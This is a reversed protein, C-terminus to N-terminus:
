SVLCSRAMLVLLSIPCFMSIGASNEEKPIYVGEAKSWSEPVVDNRWLVKLMEWLAHRISSYKKFVAYPVSSPGQSSATRAKTLYKEVESLKPESLNFPVSPETPNILGSMSGLEQEHLSDSYTSKMHEKLDERKVNLTGSKASFLLYLISISM